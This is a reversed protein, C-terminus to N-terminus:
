AETRTPRPVAVRPPEVRDTRAPTAPEPMELVRYLAARMRTAFEGPASTIRSAVGALRQANWGASVREVLSLVQGSDPLQPSSRLLEGMPSHPDVDAGGGSALMVPQGTLAAYLTASGHDGVVADAAALVARWEEEVPVVLLGAAAWDALWAKVQWTGHGMWVNPHVLLAARTTTTAAERVLRAMVDARAGLLSSAGWTSAAVVLREDRGVGLAHRYEERSDLSLRLRDFCPDGAVVAAPVAEPCAQALRRRENEHALVLVSPLVRGDRVLWQRGLGFTERPAAASGTAATAIFKNFGAGHPLLVVPAHVNEIGGTNAALALDFRMRVAQEWPLVVGGLQALFEEVGASFASPAPTFVVQVRMDSRLLAVVDLLRQGCALTHVMVLVVRCGRRTVWREADLGIPVDVWTEM